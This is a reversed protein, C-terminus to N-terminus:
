IADYARPGPYTHPPRGLQFLRSRGLLRRCPEGREVPAEVQEAGRRIRSRRFVGPAGLRRRVPEPPGDRMGPHAPTGECSPTRVPAPARQRPSPADHAALTRADLYENLSGPLDSSC